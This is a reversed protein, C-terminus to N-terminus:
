SCVDETLVDWEQIWAVGSVSDANTVDDYAIEANHRRMHADAATENTYVAAVDSECHGLMVIWVRTM